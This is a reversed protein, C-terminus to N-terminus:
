RALSHGSRFQTQFASFTAASDGAIRSSQISSITLNAPANPPNTSSTLVLRLVADYGVWPATFNRVVGGSITGASQAVGDHPRYWEATFAGPYSTLNLTFGAAVNPDPTAGPTEMGVGYNPHYVIFETGGRRLLEMSESINEQIAGPRNDAMLGPQPQFLGLDINRDQFYKWLYPVSDLGTYGSTLYPPDVAYFSGHNSSGGALLWSWFSWRFFYRANAFPGGYGEQYQDANSVHYASSDYPHIEGAGEPYSTMLSVRGVWTTDGAGLFQFAQDRIGRVSFSHHWPDHAVVYSGVDRAFAQATAQTYDTDGLMNLWMLNPFAAWRAIMYDLTNHRITSALSLWYTGGDGFTSNALMVWEYYMNPYNNLTYIERTDVTQFQTLDYRTYDVSGVGLWPDVATPDSPGPPSAQGKDGSANAIIMNVGMVAADHIFAQWDTKDQTFLLSGWEMIMPFWQGDDTVFAKPNSPHRRVIGKLTSPNAVFSGSNGNLGADIASASSWTWTGAESVYVRARWTNGGDYFAKVTKANGAGSPPTFTVTANTDFPNAVGGNGRLVIEHTGFKTAPGAGQTFNAAEAALPSLLLVALAFLIARWNV